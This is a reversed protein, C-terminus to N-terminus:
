PQTCASSCAPAQKECDAYANILSQCNASAADFCGDICADSIDCQCAEICSVMTACSATVASHQSPCTTQGCQDCGESEAGPSAGNQCTLSQGGASSDPQASSSSCATVAFVLALAIRM